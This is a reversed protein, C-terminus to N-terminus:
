ARICKGRPHEAVAHVYVIVAEIVHVNALICRLANATMFAILDSVLSEHKILSDYVQTIAYHRRSAQEWSIM